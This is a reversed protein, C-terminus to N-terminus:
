GTGAGSAAKPLLAQATPKTGYSGSAGGLGFVLSVKGALQNLNDVSSLGHSRYWPVQSPATTTTETGVVPANGLGLGGMLGNEFARNVKAQADNLATPDSRVVIISDLGNYPGSSTSFVVRRTRKLLPGGATLSAGFRRAFRTIARPDNALPHGRVGSDRAAIHDVDPPQPIVAELVLRGGTDKLADRVLSIQRDSLKGLAVLGVRQGTLRGQVVLPYLARELSDREALEAKFRDADKRANEVDRRLSNILDKRTGSVLGKDGIAIGLLIGIVLAMFVAVLSLAHYRFDFM